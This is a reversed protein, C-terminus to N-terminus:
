SFDFNAARYGYKKFILAPNKRLFHGSFFPKRKGSELGPGGTQKGRSTATYNNKTM